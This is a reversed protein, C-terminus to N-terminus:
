MNLWDEVVLGDVRGYERVNNTVVILGEAKAHASILMDMTGIPTGRKRLTACITGYEAAAASDFSLVTVISLFKMLAIANKERYESAEVGHQLEALTIASIALGDNMKAQMNKLVAQVGKQAFICTNTDLM